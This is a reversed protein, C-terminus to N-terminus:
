LGMLSVSKPHKQINHNFFSQNQYEKLLPKHLSYVDNRSLVLLRRIKRTVTSLPLIILLKECCAARNTYVLSTYTPHSDATYTTVNNYKM